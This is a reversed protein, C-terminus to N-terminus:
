KRLRSVAARGTTPMLDCNCESGRRAAPGPDIIPCTLLATFPKGYSTTDIQSGWKRGAFADATLGCHLALRSRSYGLVNLPFPNGQWYVHLARSSFLPLLLCM